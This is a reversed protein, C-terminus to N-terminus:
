SRNSRPGHLVPTTAVRSPQRRMPRSSALRDLGALTCAFAAELDGNSRYQDTIARFMAAIDAFDAPTVTMAGSAQAVAPELATECRYEDLLSQALYVFAFIAGPPRTFPGRRHMAWALDGNQRLRVHQAEHHLLRRVSPAGLAIAGTDVVIVTMDTLPITKAGARAGDPKDPDYLPEADGAGGFEWPTQRAYANVTRAFNDAISLRVQEPKPVLATLDDALEAWTQARQGSTAWEIEVADTDMADGPM